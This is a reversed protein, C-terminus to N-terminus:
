GQDNKSQAVQVFSPSIIESVLVFANSCNRQEMATDSNQYSSRSPSFAKSIMQTEAHAADGNFALNILPQQDVRHQGRRPLSDKSITRNGIEPIKTNGNIGNIFELSLIESNVSFAISGSRKMCGHHLM